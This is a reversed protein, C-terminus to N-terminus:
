LARRGESKGVFTKYSNITKGMYVVHGEHKM